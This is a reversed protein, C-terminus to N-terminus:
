KQAPKQLTLFYFSGLRPFITGFFRDTAVWIKFFFPFKRMLLSRVVTPMPLINAGHRKIIKFDQTRAIEEIKWFPFSIHRIMEWEGYSIRAEEPSMFVNKGSQKLENLIVQHNKKRRVNMYFLSFANPMSFLIKGGPKLTRFLEAMAQNQDPIHELVESCVITDISNDALPISRLDVQAYEIKESFPATNNKAASLEAPDFEYCYIKKYLPAAIACYPGRGAGADLFIKDAGAEKVVFDRVIASKLHHYYRVNSAPSDYRHFQDMQPINFYTSIIDPM